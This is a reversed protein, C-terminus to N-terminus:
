TTHFTSYIVMFYLYKWPTKKHVLKFTEFILVRYLCRFVCTIVDMCKQLMTSFDQTAPSCPLKERKSVTKSYIPSPLVQKSLLKPHETTLKPRYVHDSHSSYTLLLQVAKFSLVCDNQSNSWTHQWLQWNWFDFVIEVVVKLQKWSM